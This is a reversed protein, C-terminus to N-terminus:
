LLLMLHLINSITQKFTFRHEIIALHLVQDRSYHFHPSLTIEIRATAYLIGDRSIGCCGTRAIIQKDVEYVGVVNMPM